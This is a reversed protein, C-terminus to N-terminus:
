QDAQRATQENEHAILCQLGRTYDDIASVTWWAILLLVGILILRKVNM